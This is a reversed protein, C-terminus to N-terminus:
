GTGRHKQNPARAGPVKTFTRTDSGGHGQVLFDQNKVKAGLDGLQDGAADAFGM